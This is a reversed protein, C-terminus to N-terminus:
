PAVQTQTGQTQAAMAQAQALVQEVVAPDVVQGTSSDLMTGTAPDYVWAAPNVTQSPDAVPVATAIGAADFAYLVGDITLTTNVAMTGDAQFYRMGTMDTYWGFQMSGDAGFLYTQGAVGTLGVAMLGAANFYYQKQDVTLLEDAAMSGDAKFYRMGATPDAYFGHYMAGDEGFLYVKGDLPLLGKYLLGNQWFYYQKEGITSLGKYLHGDAPDTYFLNVGDGLWGRKYLSGDVDMFYTNGNDEVFGYQMRYNRYYYTKGNRDTFGNAIILNSFDKLQYNLDVRGAIGPVSGSSSFQWFSPGPYDCTTNYQAIWKDYPVGSIKESAWNKSAYLMPYYGAALVTNCFAVTLAALQDPTMNKHVTDELDYVVPLSVSYPALAAIAFQAETIAGEVTTAYSYVYAGVRMGVASAGAMNVGFYPDLGSKASGIKIFAFDYGANKVASWNVAGQYQSVDIGKAIPGAAQAQVGAGLFTGAAVFFALLLGTMRRKLTM